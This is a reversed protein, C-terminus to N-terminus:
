IRSQSRSKVFVVFLGPIFMLGVLTGIIMGGAASIGITRNGIAGAGDALALPLIGVIFALSTMVIPRLRLISAEVIASLLDQGNQIKQAAFEVILIANKGLLGVLMLISVQAYINNELGFIMLFLLAGFVGIPLSFIVVMPLVFSEYQASLILYVFFICVFLIILAESGANAEDRSIGAWDIDFDNPLSAEATKKVIKLVEGSSVGQIGEGNLEASPYMNYRTMQDVGYTKNLTV